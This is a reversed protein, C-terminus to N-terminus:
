KNGDVLKANNKESELYFVKVINYSKEISIDLEMNARSLYNNLIKKYHHLNDLYRQHEKVGSYPTLNANMDALTKRMEILIELNAM